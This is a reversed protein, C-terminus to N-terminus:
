NVSHLNFCSFCGEREGVVSLWDRANSLEGLFFFSFSFFPESSLWWNCFFCPQIFKLICSLWDIIFYFTEKKRKEENLWWNEKKKIEKRLLLLWIFSFSFNLTFDFDCVWWVCDVIWQSPKTKMLVWLEIAWVVM